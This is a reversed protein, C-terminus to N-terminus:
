ASSYHIEPLVIPATFAAPFRAPPWFDKSHDNWSSVSCLLRFYFGFFNNLFLLRPAAQKDIKLGGMTYHIAPTVIAVYFPAELDFEVPFVTKGFSDKQPDFGGSKQKNAYVNSDTLTKKLTELDCNLHKALAEVNEM